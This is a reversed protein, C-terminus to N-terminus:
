TRCSRGRARAFHSAADPKGTQLFFILPNKKNVRLGNVVVELEVVALVDVVEAIVPVKGLLLEEELTSEAVELRALELVPVGMEAFFIGSAGPHIVQGLTGAVFPRLTRRGLGGRRGRRLQGRDLVAFNFFLLSDLDLGFGSNGRIVRDDFDGDRRFRHRVDDSEIRRVTLFEGCFRNASRGRIRRFLGGLLFLLLFLLSLLVLVFAFVSRVGLVALNEVRALALEALGRERVDALGVLVQFLLLVDILAERDPPELAGEAEVVALALDVPEAVEVGVPVRCLDIPERGRTVKEEDRQFSHM